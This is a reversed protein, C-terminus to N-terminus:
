ADPWPRLVEGLRTFHEEGVWAAEKLFRDRALLNPMREAARADAWDCLGLRWAPGALVPVPYDSGHLLRDRHRSLLLRRLTRARFLTNLASTDAYLRPFEDMMALLADTHDRDFPHSRGAGHAAIVKVGIELPRRLNRPDQYARNMVPVTLEGGTHCLFPLGAAAMREWFADHRRDSCDVNQCNPLLKLARAGLGLCRELEVLADPRSPHVAVAPVFEPHARCVAFLHDNPVHFSGFDLKRGADDYVEEQALLLVRDLGSGRVLQVLNAVYAADFEPADLRTPLGIQRRMFEALLRHWGGPVKLWCGSGSLGNGVLHVHCDYRLPAM